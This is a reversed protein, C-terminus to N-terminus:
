EGEEFKKFLVDLPLDSNVIRKFDQAEDFTLVVKGNLKASWVSASKGSKEALVELTMGARTMEAKANRFM